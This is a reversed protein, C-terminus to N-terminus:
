QKSKTFSHLYSVCIISYIFAVFVINHHFYGLYLAENGNFMSHFFSLSLNIHIAFVSAAETLVTCRNFHVCVTWIFDNTCELRRFTYGTVIIIPKCHVMSGIKKGRKKCRKYLNHTTYSSLQHTHSTTIIEPNDDLSFALTRFDNSM